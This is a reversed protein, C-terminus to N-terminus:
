RTYVTGRGKGQRKIYGAETLRTLDYKVTNRSVAPLLADIERVSLPGEKKIFNLVTSQRKNLYLSGPENVMSTRDEEFNGTLKRIASLLFYMFKGIEEEDDNRYRQASMLAAYYDTKRQEVIQELSVYLLFRYGARLLLLNTLLRSLRGNGDQFPHISLFEYVFTGIVILPHRTGAEIERNFWAVAQCMADPTHLVSTTQFIVRQQGEPDTAVVRNDVKKYDGRQNQDKACYRLMENHLGKILTETLVLDEHQDQIIELVKYYGAIEQEDRTELKRIDMNEILYAIDEDEMQAGEIRTSSGVSKVTALHRLERLQDPTLADDITWGRQYADIESIIREISQRTVYDFTLLRNM